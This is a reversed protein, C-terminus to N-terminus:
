LFITVNISGYQYSRIINASYILFLYFQRCLILVINPFFNLSLFFNDRTSSSSCSSIYYVLDLTSKRVWCCIQAPCYMNKDFDINFYKQNQYIIWHESLLPKPRVNFDLSENISILVFRIQKHVINLQM